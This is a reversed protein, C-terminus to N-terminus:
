WKITVPTGVGVGLMLAASDGVIALELFGSSGVLAMLTMEPQDSYTRFIGQTEHEDCHIQVSEDTPAGALMDSTIDTVLNGFSDISRVQGVIKNPLIRVEPEPLEVLGQRQEGLENADLGLSLRAAVPAMIDRGHFTASVREHWFRRQTLTVIRSPKTRAALRGLLGNDPAIYHRGAIEAYVITRETGVGPDVVAVHISGPPFSDAVELLVWGGAVINQPPIGHTVDILVAHPNLTLIAGKMQAVYPSGVGFDTLLTIIPPATIAMPSDNSASFISYRPAM